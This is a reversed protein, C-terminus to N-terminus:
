PPAAFCALCIVATAVSRGFAFFYKYLEWRSGWYTATTTNDTSTVGSSSVSLSTVVLCPADLSAMAAVTENDRGSVVDETTATSWLSFADEFRSWKVPVAYTVPSASKLDKMQKLEAIAAVFTSNSTVAAGNLDKGYNSSGVFGSLTGTVPGKSFLRCGNVGLRKMWVQWNTGPARHGMNVGITGPSSAAQTTTLTVATNAAEMSQMYASCVCWSSCVAYPAHSSHMITSLFPMQLCAMRMAAVAEQCVCKM